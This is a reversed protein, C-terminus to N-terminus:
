KHSSKKGSKKSPPTKGAKKANWYAKLGAPMKATSKPLTAM